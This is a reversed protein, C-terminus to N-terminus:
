EEGGRPHSQNYVKKLHALSASTYIQTASLNAHGLLEKIVNLDAGRNLLHTAFSHRLVHPSRKSKDTVIGLYDKVVGYVFRPYLKLGKSTLLLENDGAEPFRDNRLQIYDELLSILVPSLPCLREKNRKGIIKLLKRSWDIDSIKLGIMEARRMGTGYLLELILRNRLGEFDDEFCDTAFLEALEEESIVDVVKKSQKPRALKLTPNSEVFGEVELWKYFRGLASLKRNVARASIQDHLEVLWSRLLQHNVEELTECGGSELFRWCQTLDTEYAKLTHVSYRREVKLYEIFKEQLDTWKM